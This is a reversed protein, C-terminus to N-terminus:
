QLPLNNFSYPVWGPAWTYEYVGSLPVTAASGDMFCINIAKNHRAILFRFHDNQTNAQWAANGTLDPPMPADGTTNSTAFNNPFADIWASDFFLPVDSAHPISAVSVGFYDTHKSNPTDGATHRNWGYSGYRYGGPRNSNNPMNSKDYRVATKVTQSMGTWATSMTGMYDWPHMEIADPCLWTRQDIKYNALIGIWYSNWSFDPGLKKSYWTGPTFTGNPLTKDGSQYYPMRGKGENLYMMMGQGLQRLNSLCEVTRAQERAKNLAPLLISILIGIIGIVVLLEVLTFGRPRLPARAM